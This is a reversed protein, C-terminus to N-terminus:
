NDDDIAHDLFFFAVWLHQCSELDVLAQDVNFGCMRQVVGCLDIIDERREPVESSEEVTFRVELLLESLSQHHLHPELHRLALFLELLFGVKDKTITNVGEEVDHRTQSEHENEDCDEHHWDHADVSEVTRLLETASWQVPEISKCKSVIAARGHEALM